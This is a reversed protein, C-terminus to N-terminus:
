ESEAVNKIRRLTQIVGERLQNLRNTQGRFALGVIPRVYWMTEFSERLVTGGTDPELDFRWRSQTKGVMPKTEFGFVRHPEWHTVTCITSWRIWDRRNYGKFQAGSYAGVTDGLWECRYCEPSWEGMRTVDSLLEYVKEPSARILIEEYGSLGAAGDGRAVLLDIMGM